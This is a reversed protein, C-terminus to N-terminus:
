NAGGEGPEAEIFRHHRSAGDLILDLCRQEIGDNAIQISIIPHEILEDLSYEKSERFM